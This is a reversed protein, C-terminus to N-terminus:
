KWRIDDRKLKQAAKVYHLLSGALYLSWLVILNVISCVKDHQM